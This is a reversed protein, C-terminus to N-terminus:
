PNKTNLVKGNHSEGYDPSNKLMWAIYELICYIAYYICEAKWKEEQVIIDAAYQV